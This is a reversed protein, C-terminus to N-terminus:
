IAEIWTKTNARESLYIDYDKGVVKGIAELDNVEQFALVDTGITAFHKALADFDAQKRKSQVFQESPKTTLWEINWTTVALPAAAIASSILFLILAFTYNQWNPRSITM